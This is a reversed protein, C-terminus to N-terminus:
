PSAGETDEFNRRNDDYLRVAKAFLNCCRGTGEFFVVPINNQVVAEHVTKVTFPGGEVVLLIVPVPKEPRSSQSAAKSPTEMNVSCASRPAFFGGSIAQTLQARFEIEGGYKRATGDDIFIFESHNPELPAEGSANSHSKPYVVNSGRVALQEVGSVCGWTAIGILHIPRSRDPNQQVIEGVLKMIGTNTGGTIIWASHDTSILKM